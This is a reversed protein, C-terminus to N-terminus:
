NQTTHNIQQKLAQEKDGSALIALIDENSLMNLMEDFESTDIAECNDSASSRSRAKALRPRQFWNRDIASEFFKSWYINLERASALYFLGGDNWCFKM